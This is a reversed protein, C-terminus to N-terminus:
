CVFQLLLFIVIFLSIISILLVLLDHFSCTYISYMYFYTLVKPECSFLLIILQFIFTGFYSYSLLSFSLPYSKRFFHLSWIFSVCLLACPFNSMEVSMSTETLWFLTFTHSCVTFIACNKSNTWRSEGEESQCLDNEMHEKIHREDLAKKWKEPM